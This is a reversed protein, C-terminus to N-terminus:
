KKLCRVSFGHKTPPDSTSLRTQSLCCLSYVGTKTTLWKHYKFKWLQRQLSPSVWTALCQWLPNKLTNLLSTHRRRLIYDKLLKRYRGDTVPLGAWRRSQWVRWKVKLGPESCCDTWALMVACRWTKEAEVLLLQLMASVPGERLHRKM